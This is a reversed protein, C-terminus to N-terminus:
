KLRIIILQKFAAVFPAKVRIPNVSSEKAM